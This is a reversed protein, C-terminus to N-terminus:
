KQSWEAIFTTAAEKRYLREDDPVTGTAEVNEIPFSITTTFTNYVTKRSKSIIARPPSSVATMKSVVKVNDERDKILYSPIM